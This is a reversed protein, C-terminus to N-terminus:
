PWGIPVEHTVLLSEENDAVLSPLREKVSCHLPVSPSVVARRGMRVHILTACTDGPHGSTPDGPGPQHQHRGPWGAAGPEAAEAPVSHPRPTCHYPTIM